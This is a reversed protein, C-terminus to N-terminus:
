QFFAEGLRLAERHMESQTKALWYTKPDAKKLANYYSQNKVGVPAKGDTPRVSSQPPAYNPDVPSSPKVELVSLFAKPSEAALGNLFDKGLGLERAKEALKNAYHPGWAKELEAKATEINRTQISRNTETSLTKRVLEAIQEETLGSAAKTGAPVEHGLPQEQVNSESTAAPAKGASNMTKELYAELSLRTDLEKRMEAQERQLKQIFLDSEYKGKALGEVDLKNDTTRFKSTAYDIYNAPPQETPNITQEPTTGNFLDTM